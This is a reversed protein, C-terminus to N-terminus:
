SHLKCGNKLAGSSGGSYEKSTKNLDDKKIEEIYDRAYYGM